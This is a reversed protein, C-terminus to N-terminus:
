VILIKKEIMYELAQIYEDESTLGDTFWMANTKWWKPIKLDHYKVGESTEFVNTQLVSAKEWNTTIETKEFKESLLLGTQKDIVIMKTKEQNEAVVGERVLNGIPYTATGYM